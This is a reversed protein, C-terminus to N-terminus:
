PTGKIYTVNGNRTAMVGGKSIAIGDKGNVCVVMNHKTQCLVGQIHIRQLSSGNAMGVIALTAFAAIAIVLKKV